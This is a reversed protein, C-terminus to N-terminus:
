HPPPLWATLLFAYAVFAVLAVILLWEVVRRPDDNPPETKKFM